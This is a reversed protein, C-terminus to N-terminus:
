CRNIHQCILTRTESAHKANVAAATATVILRLRYLFFILIRRTRGM